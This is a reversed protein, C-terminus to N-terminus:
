PHRREDICADGTVDTWRGDGCSMLVRGSETVAVLLYDCQTAQTNRVGFGSAQIIKDGM